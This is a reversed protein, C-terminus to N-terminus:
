IICTYIHTYIHLRRVLTNPHLLHHVTHLPAPRLQTRSPLTYRWQQQIIQLVRPGDLRGRCEAHLQQLLEASQPPQRPRPQPRPIAELGVQQQLPHPPPFARRRRFPGICEGRWQSAEEYRNSTYHSSVALLIHQSYPTSKSAQAFSSPTRLKSQMLIIDYASEIETIKTQDGGVSRLLKNKAQLVEDFTASEVVSLIERAKEVSMTTSPADM